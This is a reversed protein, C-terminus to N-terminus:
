RRDWYMEFEFNLIVLDVYWAYWSIRNTSFRFRLPEIYIREFNNHKWQNSFEFKIM